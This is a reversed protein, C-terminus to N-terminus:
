GPALPGSMGPGPGEEASGDDRFAPEAAMHELDYGEKRVRLDFYVVTVVAALFPITLISALTVTVAYAVEGAVTSDLRELLGTGIASFIQDAIAFFLFGLAVAGLVPWSRGSVLAWSRRMAEAPGLRETVLAPTVVAWRVYLIVGPVVLLLLGLATGVAVLLTAGVLPLLRRAGARLSAVWDPDRGLCVQALVTISAANVLSTGLVGVFLAVLLFLFLEGLAGDAAPDTLPAFTEEGVALVLLYELVTIPVIVVAAVKVLTLFNGRYLRIAVAVIDAVGLPRLDYPAPQM